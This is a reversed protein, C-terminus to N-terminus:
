RARVQIGVYDWKKLIKLIDADDAGGSTIIGIINSLDATITVLNTLVVSNNAVLTAVNTVLNNLNSVIANLAALEASVDLDITGVLTVAGPTSLTPLSVTGTLGLTGHETM